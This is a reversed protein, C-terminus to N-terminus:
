GNPWCGETILEVLHGDPDRFYLSHGGRPCDVESEIPIGLQDLHSRWSDRSRADIAFALHLSGRGDHDPIRGGPTDTPECSQGICFLLLVQREAIGLALLRNGERSLEPLQFVRQYFERSRDLDAVYLATEAIGSLTPM